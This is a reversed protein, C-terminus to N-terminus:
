GAIRHKGECGRGGHAPPCAGRIECGSDFNWPRLYSAHAGRRSLCLDIDHDANCLEILTRLARDIAREDKNTAIALDYAFVALQLRREMFSRSPALAVAGAKAGILTRIPANAAQITPFMLHHKGPIHQRHLPRLDM